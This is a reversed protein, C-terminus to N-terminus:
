SNRTAARPSSSRTTAGTASRSAAAGDVPGRGHRAGSPSYCHVKGGYVAAATWGSAAAVAAAGGLAAPARGRRRRGDLGRRHGPVVRRRRAGAGGRARGRRRAVARRPRRRPKAAGADAARGRRRPAAPPARPGLSPSSAGAARPGAGLRLPRPAPPLLTGTKRLGDGDVAYVVVAGDAAAVVVRRASAVAVAAAAAAERFVRVREGYAVVKLAGDVALAAVAGGDDAAAFSEPADDDGGAPEAAAAALTAPRAAADVSPAAAAGRVDLRAHVEGAFPWAGDELRPALHRLSVTRPSACRKEALSRFVDKGDCFFKAERVTAAKGLVVVTSRLLVFWTTMTVVVSCELSALGEDHLLDQYFPVSERLEAPESRWAREVAEKGTMSAARADPVWAPAPAAGGAAASTKWLRSALTGDIVDGVRSGVPEGDGVRGLRGAYDTEFTWDWAQAPKIKADAGGLTAVTARAEAADWFTSRDCKAFEGRSDRRASLAAWAKLAHLADLSLRTQSPAHVCEVFSRGHVAEPVHAAVGCLDLSGCPCDPPPGRSTPPPGSAAPPHQMMPPMPATVFPGGMPPAFAMHPVPSPQPAAPPPPPAAPGGAISTQSFQAMLQNMISRQGRENLFEFYPLMTLPVETQQGNRSSALVRDVAEKAARHLKEEAPTPPMGAATAPSSAESGSAPTASRDGPEAKAFFRPAPESGEAAGSGRAGLGGNTPTDAAFSDTALLDLVGGGLDMDGVRPSFQPSFDIKLDDDDDDLGGGRNKVANETRGPLLKAIESWRNGHVRQTEFLINDEEPTWDGKKIEPDLHNFWRERCQKGIRGPLQAAIVSWKINGAGHRLVMDKVIKDEDATWPGKSLGPRLVKNWRHLCQVDSRVNGLLMALRKWNKAGFTEVIERLRNDEEETWKGGVPKIDVAAGKPAPPPRPTRRAGLSEPSSPLDAAAGGGSSQRKGRRTGTFAGEEFLTAGALDLDDDRNERKVQPARGLPTNKLIMREGEARYAFHSRPVGGADRINPSNPVQRDMSEAPPRGPKAMAEACTCDFSTGSLDCPPTGAGAADVIRALEDCLPFGATFANGGLGLQRLRPLQMAPAAGSMANREVDLDELAPLDLSRPLRGTM